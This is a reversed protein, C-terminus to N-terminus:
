HSRRDGEADPYAGAGAPRPGNPSDTGSSPGNQASVRRCSRSSTDFPSSVCDAVTLKSPVPVDGRRHKALFADREAKAETRTRAKLTVMRWAGAEDAYGVLYRTGAKSAGAREYLNDSKATRLECADLIPRLPLAGSAAQARGRSTGRARGRARRRASSAARLAASGASGALRRRDSARRRERRVRPRAGERPRIAARRPAARPSVARRGGIATVRGGGSRPSRSRRAPAARCGRRGARPPADVRVDAAPRDRRDRGRDLLLRHAPDALQEAVGCAVADEDAAPVHGVEDAEEGPSPRLRRRIDACFPDVVLARRTDVARGLRVGPDLLRRVHETEADLAIRQISVSSSCRMRRRRAAPRSRWRGRLPRSGRGRRRHRPCWRWRPPRGASPVGRPRRRAVVEPEVDVASVSPEGGTKGVRGGVQLASREPPSARSRGACTATCAARPPRM